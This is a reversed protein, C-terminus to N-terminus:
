AALAVVISVTFALVSFGGFASLQARFTLTHADSRGRARAVVMAGYVRAGVAGALLGLM